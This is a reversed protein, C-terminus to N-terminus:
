KVAGCGGPGCNAFAGLMQRPLLTGQELQPRQGAGLVRSSRRAPTDAHSTAGDVPILYIAGIGEIRVDGVRTIRASATPTPRPPREAARAPSGTSGGGVPGTMGCTAGM